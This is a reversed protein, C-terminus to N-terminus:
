MANYALRCCDESALPGVSVGEERIKTDFM